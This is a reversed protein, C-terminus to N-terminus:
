SPSLCFCSSVSYLLLRRVLPDSSSDGVKVPAGQNHGFGQYLVYIYIYSGPLLVMCLGQWVSVSTLGDTMVHTLMSDVDFYGIRWQQPQSIWPMLEVALRKFFGRTLELQSREATGAGPLDATEVQGAWGGLAVLLARKLRVSGLVEQRQAVTNGLLACDQLFSHMYVRIFERVGAPDKMESVVHYQFRAGEDSTLKRELRRAASSLEVFDRQEGGPRRSGGEGGQSWGRWDSM